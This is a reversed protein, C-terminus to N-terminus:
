VNPECQAKVPARNFFWILLGNWAVLLAIGLGLGFTQAARVMQEMAQQQAPETAAGSMISQLMQHQWGHMILQSALGAAVSLAAQWMVLVRAWGKLMLLGIGAILAALGLLGHIWTLAQVVPSTFFDQMKARMQQLQERLHAMKEPPMPQGDAGKAQGIQEDLQRFRQEMMGGRMAGSVASSVVSGVLALVGGLILLVAWVMVGTSRQKM